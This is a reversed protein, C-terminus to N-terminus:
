IISCRFLLFYYFAELFGGQPWQRRVTNTHEEKKRESAREKKREKKEYKQHQQKHKSRVSTLYVYIYIRRPTHFARRALRSRVRWLLWFNSALFLIYLTSFSFSIFSLSLTLSLSPPHLQATFTVSQYRQTKDM